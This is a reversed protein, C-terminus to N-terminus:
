VPIHASVFSGHLRKFFGYGEREGMKRAVAYQDGADTATGVTHCHEAGDMGGSDSLKGHMAIEIQPVVLAQAVPVKDLCQAGSEAYIEMDLFEVCFFIAPLMM